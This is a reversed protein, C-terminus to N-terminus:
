MILCISEVRARLKSVEVVILLWSSGSIAMVSLVSVLLLLVWDLGTRMSMLLSISLGGSASSLLCCGLGTTGDRGIQM